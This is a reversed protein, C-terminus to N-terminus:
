RLFIAESMVHASLCVKIIVKLKDQAYEEAVCGLVTFRRADGAADRSIRKGHKSSPSFCLVACSEGLVGQVICLCLCFRWQVSPTTTGSGAACRFKANAACCPGGGACYIFSSQSSARQKVCVCSCASAM